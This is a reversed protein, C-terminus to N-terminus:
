SSSRGGRSTPNMPGCINTHIVELPQKAQSTFSQNHARKHTKGKVCDIYIIDKMTNKKGPKLTCGTSHALLRKLRVMSPHGMRLHWIQLTTQRSTCASRALEKAEQNLYYLNRIKSTSLLKRGDKIIPLGKGKDTYKVECGKGFLEGVTILNSCTGPLLHVGKLTVTDVGEKEQCSFTVYGCETAEITEGNAISVRRPTIHVLNSM